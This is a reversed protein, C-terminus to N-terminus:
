RLLELGANYVMTYISCPTFYLTSDTGVTGYQQNAVDKIITFRNHGIDLLIVDTVLTEVM